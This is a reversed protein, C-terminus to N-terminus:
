SERRSFLPKRDDDHTTLRCAQLRRRLQVLEDVMQDIKGAISSADSAVIERNYLNGAEFIATMIATLRGQLRHGQELAETRGIPEPPQAPGGNQLQEYRLRLWDLILDSGLIDCVRPLMHLPPFQKSSESFYNGVSNAGMGLHEAIDDLTLGSQEKMLRLVQLASMDALNRRNIM